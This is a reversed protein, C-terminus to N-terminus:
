LLGKLLWTKALAKADKGSRVVEEWYALEQPLSGVKLQGTPNPLYHASAQLELYTGRM